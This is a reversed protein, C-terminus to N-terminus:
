VEKRELLRRLNEGEEKMHIEIAKIRDKAFRSFFWGFRFSLTATFICDDGKREIIFSGKPCLIGMPFLNMFEISKNEEVETIKARSRHLEGHLYEEYYAINGEDLNGTENIWEVHDPHWEKYHKDLNKLWKFIEDPTAKIKITNRLTIM